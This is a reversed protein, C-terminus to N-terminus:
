GAHAPGSLSRFFEEFSDNQASGQVPRDLAFRLIEATRFDLL